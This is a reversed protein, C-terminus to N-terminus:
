MTINNHSIQRGNTLTPLGCRSCREDPLSTTSFRCKERPLLLLLAGRFTGLIVKLVCM